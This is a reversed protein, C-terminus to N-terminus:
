KLRTVGLDNLLYAEGSGMHLEADGDDNIWWRAKGADVLSQCHSEIQRRVESVEDTLSSSITSM